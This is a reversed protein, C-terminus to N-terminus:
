GPRVCYLNFIPTGELFADQEVAVSFGKGELLSRVTELRGDLDHVEIVIQGIRSWDEEAIGRLVDLESKEVDIKLLDIWEVQNERLVESLTKIRCLVVEGAFRGAVLHEIDSDGLGDHSLITRTVSEEDEADAYRGSM